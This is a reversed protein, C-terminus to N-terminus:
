VSRVGEMNDFLLQCNTNKTYLRDITQGSYMNELQSRTNNTTIITALKGDNINLNWRANAVDYMLTRLDKHVPKYFGKETPKGGETGFDDLVLVDVKKMDKLVYNLRERVDPADYKENVLRLLEATSVFMATQGVSMLQYMIALALSTKGVGPGGALAVNFQNTELQRALKFAQNGLERAKAQNPQKDVQWDNFSFRLPVGGSWVSMRYYYRKRNAIVGANARDITQHDLEEKTPLKTTDIGRAAVVKQITAQNFLKTVNEM